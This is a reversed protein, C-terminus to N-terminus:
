LNTINCNMIRQTTSIVVTIGESVYNEMVLNNSQTWFIEMSVIGSNMNSINKSEQRLVESKQSLIMPVKVCNTRLLIAVWSSVFLPKTNLSKIM